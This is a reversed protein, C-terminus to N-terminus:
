SGPNSAAASQLHDATHVFRGACERDCTRLGISEGGTSSGSGQSACYKEAEALIICWSLFHRSTFESGNDCPIALPHDREMIIGEPV